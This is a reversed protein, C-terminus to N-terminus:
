VAVWPVPPAPFLRVNRGALILADAMGELRGLQTAFHDFREAGREDLPWEGGSHRAILQWLRFYDRTLDDAREDVQVQYRCRLIRVSATEFAALRGLAALFEGRLRRGEESGAEVRARRYTRGRLKARVSLERHREDIRKRFREAGVGTTAWVVPARPPM